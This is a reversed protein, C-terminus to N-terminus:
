TIDTTRVDFRLRHSVRALTHRACDYLCRLAFLPVAAVTLSFSRSGSYVSVISEHLVNVKRLLFAFYAMIPQEAFESSHRPKSNAHVRKFFLPSGGVSLYKGRSLFYTLVPYNNNAPIRSNIGWWIPIRVECISERRHLGYFFADSYVRCFKALRILAGDSSYENCRVGSLKGVCADGDEDIFQFPCFVSILNTDREIADLLTSIFGCDWRDDSSAWMFYQGRAHKLVFEYNKQMGLRPKQQYFRVRSDQKSFEKCIEATSDVSCDDSIILEFDRFSQSLIDEIALSVYRQDNYALMGISVRPSRDSVGFPSLIRPEERGVSSM